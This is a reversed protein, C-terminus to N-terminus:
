NNDLVDGYDYLGWCRVTVGYEADRGKENILSEVTFGDQNIKVLRTQKDLGTLSADSDAIISLEKLIKNVTKLETAGSGPVNYDKADITMEIREKIMSPAPKFLPSVAWAKKGNAMSLTYRYTKGKNDGSNIQFIIDHM